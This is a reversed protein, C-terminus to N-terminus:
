KKEKKAFPNIDKKIKKIQIKNIFKSLLFSKRRKKSFYFDRVKRM